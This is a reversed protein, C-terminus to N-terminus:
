WSTGTYSFSIFLYPMTNIAACIDIKNVVVSDLVNNANFGNVVIHNGSALPSSLGARPDGDDDNYIYWTITEGQANGFSAEFSVVSCGKTCDDINIEFMNGWTFPVNANGSGNISEITGEGLQYIANTSPEEVEFIPNDTGSCVSYNFTDASPIPACQAILYNTNFFVLTLTSIFSLFLNVLNQTYFKSRLDFFNKM